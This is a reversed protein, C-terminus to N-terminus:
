GKKIKLDSEPLLFVWGSLHCLLFGKDIRKKAEEVWTKDEVIKLAEMNLLGGPTGKPIHLYRSVIKRKLIINQEHYALVIKKQWAMRKKVKENEMNISVIIEKSAKKKKKSEKKLLDGLKM